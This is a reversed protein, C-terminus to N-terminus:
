ITLAIVAISLGTFALWYFGSWRLIDAGDLKGTPIGSYDFPMMQFFTFLGFMQAVTEFGAGLFVFSFLLLPAIGGFAIWFKYNAWIVDISKGWNEYRKRSVESTIPFLLIFPLSTAVAAIAGVLTTSAGQRSLKLDVYGDLKYIVARIGLERVFLIFASVVTFFVGGRLDLSGYFASFALGTVLSAIFFNKLDEEDPVGSAEPYEMSFIKVM